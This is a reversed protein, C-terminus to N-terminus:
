HPDGRHRHRRQRPHVEVLLPNKGELTLWVDAEPVNTVLLITAKDGSKYSKRDPIIEIRQDATGSQAWVGSVWLWSTDDIARGANDAASVKVLYSASVPAPFDVQGKGDPGTKGELKLIAPEAAGKKTHPAVEVHFPM